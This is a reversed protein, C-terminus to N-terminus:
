ANYQANLEEIVQAGGRDLWQQAADDLGAEDIQGCIYQTRADDIIQEIDTGSEANADSNSLLGLCPNFVAYDINKLMCDTAAQASETAETSVIDTRANRAPIYAVAQNLGCNPMQSSDMDSNLVVNGNENITYSIGEIGYDALNLMENDNMKDLFNLCAKLDDETAAGAKTIVYFGNYGSTALTRPESSADKAIPGVMTMTATKSSDVVSAINNNTFYNWIRKAGDMTDLFSGAEGTKCADEWTSTDVTAWDPRVLGDEYVKRVWKLAEKYEDTQHVPVLKGGQDVWENGCGFWTQMVDIPGTYKCLELGYTNDQGDGDPDDYTFAHWMNYVDEVTKPESLGLKEAWDTRYAFGFRGIDRTRPIGILEGNITLNNLVNENAQSLNPYDKIYPSLDWFAGKKAADVINASIAGSGTCTIVMPMNNRDMLTLGLKDGYTDNAELRWEVTTNTYDEYTQIVEDSHENSFETGYFTPMMFTITPREGTAAASAAGSATSAATSSAKSATSSSGGCAALTGAAGLVGVAKLFSRRSILNKM